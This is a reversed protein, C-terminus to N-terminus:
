LRERNEVCWVMFDRADLHLLRMVRRRHGDITSRALKIGHSIEGISYGRGILRCIERQRDSLADIRHDVRSCVALCGVGAAPLPHLVFSMRMQHTSIVTLQQPHGAVICVSVAARLSGQHDAHMRAWLPVGVVEDDDPVAALCIGSRDLIYVQGDM